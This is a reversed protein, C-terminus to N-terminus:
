SAHSVVGGMGLHQQAGAPPNVCEQSCRFRSASITIANAILDCRVGDSPPLTSRFTM